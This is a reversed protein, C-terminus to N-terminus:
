QFFIALFGDETHFVGHEGDGSGDEAGLIVDVGVGAANLVGAVGDEQHPHMGTAPASDAAVLELAKETFALTLV